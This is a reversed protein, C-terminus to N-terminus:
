IIITEEYNYWSGSYNNQKQKKNKQKEQESGCWWVIGVAGLDIASTSIPPSLPLHLLPQISKEISLLRTPPGQNRREKKKSSQNPSKERKNQFSIYLM